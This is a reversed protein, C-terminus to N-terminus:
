GKSIKVRSARIVKGNLMYGNEVEEIISQPPKDSEVEAIAEHLGPNFSEGISVQIKELGYRKLLDELQNRIIMFGKKDDDNKIMVLGLDFSDMVGIIEKVLSENSFKAFEAFRLTEEKKYNIFDAKARKWGDLYEDRLKECEAIKLKLEESNDQNKEEM